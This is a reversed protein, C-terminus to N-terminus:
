PSPGPCVRPAARGNEAAARSGSGAGLGCPSPPLLLKRMGRQAAGLGPPAPHSSHLRNGVGPAVPAEKALYKNSCPPTYHTHSPPSAIGEEEEPLQWGTTGSHSLRGPALPPRRMLLPAAGVPGHVVTLEYSLGTRVLQLSTEVGHRLKGGLLGMRGM